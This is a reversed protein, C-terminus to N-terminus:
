LATKCFLRNGCLNTSTDKMVEIMFFVNVSNVQAFRSKSGKRYSLNPVPPPPREINDCVFEVPSLEFGREEAEEKLQELAGGALLTYM